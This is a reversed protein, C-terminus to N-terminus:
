VGVRPPSGDGVNAWLGRLLEPALVVASWQSKCQVFVM